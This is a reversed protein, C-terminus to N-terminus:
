PPSPASSPPMPSLTVLPRSLQFCLAELEPDPKRGNGNNARKRDRVKDAIDKAQADLEVAKEVRAAHDV